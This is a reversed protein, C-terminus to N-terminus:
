GDRRLADRWLRSVEARLEDLTGANGIVVKAHRM